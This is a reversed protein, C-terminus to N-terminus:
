NVKKRDGYRRFMFFIYLVMAISVLVLGSGIVYKGYDANYFYLAGGLLTIIAGIRFIPISKRLM